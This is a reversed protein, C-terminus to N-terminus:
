RKRGSGPVECECRILFEAAIQRGEVALDNRVMAVYGKGSALPRAAKARTVKSASAKARLQRKGDAFLITAGHAGREVLRLSEAVSAATARPRLVKSGKPSMAGLVVSLSQGRAATRAKSAVVRSATGKGNGTEWLRQWALAVREVLELFELAAADLRESDCPEACLVQMLSVRRMSYSGLADLLERQQPVRKGHRSARTGLEIRDSAVTPGMFSLDIKSADGASEVRTVRTVRALSPVRSIMPMPQASRGTLVIDVPRVLKLWQSIHPYQTGLPNVAIDTEIHEVRLLLRRKAITGYDRESYPYLCALVLASGNSADAVRDLKADCLTARTEVDIVRGELATSGPLQRHPPAVFCVILKDGYARGLDSLAHQRMAEAAFPAATKTDSAAFVSAVQAAIAQALQTKAQILREHFAIGRTRLRAAVMPRLATEIDSLLQRARLEAVDEDSSTSLPRCAFVAAGSGFRVELMKRNVFHLAETASGGSTDSQTAVKVSPLVTEVQKAFDALDVCAPRGSAYKGIRPQVPTEISRVESREPILPDVLDTDRAVHFLVKFEGHAAISTVRDPLAFVMNTSFDVKRQGLVGDRIAAIFELIKQIPAIRLVSRERGSLVSVFVAVGKSRYQQGVQELLVLLRRRHEGDAQKCFKRLSAIGLDLCFRISKGRGKAELLYSLSVGPLHALNVLPDTYRIRMEHLALRSQGPIANGFVDLYELQLRFDTGCHEYFQTASLKAASFSAGAAYMNSLWVGGGYTKEYSWEHSAGKAMRMWPGLGSLESVERMPKGDEGIETGARGGGVRLRFRVMQFLENLAATPSRDDDAPCRRLLRIGFVGPPLTSVDHAWAPGLLVDAGGELKAQVLSKTLTRRPLNTKIALDLASDAADIPAGHITRGTAFLGPSTWNADLLSEAKMEFMRAISALTEGARVSYRPPSLSIVASPSSPSVIVSNALRLTLPGPRLRLLFRLPFEARGDKDLESPSPARSFLYTGGCNTLGVVYLTKLMDALSSVSRARAARAALRPPHTVTSLDSRFLEFDSLEGFKGTLDPCLLSFDVVDQEATSERVLQLLRGAVGAQAGLIEVCYGEGQGNAAPLTALRGTFNLLIAWQAERTQLSGETWEVVSPLKARSPWSRVANGISGIAASFERPLPYVSENGRRLLLPNALAFERPAQRYPPIPGVSVISKSLEKLVGIPGRDALRWLKEFADRTPFLSVEAEHRTNVDSIRVLARPDASTSVVFQQGLLAYLGREIAARGSPICGRHGHLLAFAGAGAATQIVDKDFRASQGNQATSSSQIASRAVVLCYDLLTDAVKRASRTDARIATELKASGTEIAFSPPMPFATFSRSDRDSATPAEECRFVFRTRGVVLRNAEDIRAYSRFDKDSRCEVENCLARLFEEFPSSSGSADGFCRILPQAVVCRADAAKGSRQSAELDLCGAFCVAIPIRIEAPPPLTLANRRQSARVAVRPPVAPRSWPAVSDSGIEVTRSVRASFSKSIKVFAIRVSGSARVDAEFCLTSKRYAELVLQVQARAGIDIGVALIVLDVKGYIRGEVAVTAALRYFQTPELAPDGPEWMALLGEFLASVTITIAGSIPGWHYEGGLGARIGLGFAYSAVFQGSEPQPVGVIGSKARQIRIGGSGVFPLLSVGFSRSFDMNQPFGLDLLFEGDTSVMVEIFPLSVSLPPFSLTRIGTPLQLRGAFASSGNARKSYLICGEFGELAKFRKAPATVSLQLGYVRQDWFVAAARIEGLLSLDAAFFLSSGANYSLAPTWKPDNPDSNKKGQTKQKIDDIVEVVTRSDKLGLDIRQGLGLYSLKFPSSKPMPLEPRSGKWAITEEPFIRSQGQVLAFSLGDVSSYSLRAQKITFSVFGFNVSLEKGNSPHYELAYTTSSKGNGGVAFSLDRARIEGLFNRWPRAPLMFGPSVYKALCELADALTPENPEGEAGGISFTYKREASAYTGKMCLPLGFMECNAYLELTDNTTGM